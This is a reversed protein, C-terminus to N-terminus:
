AKPSLTEAAKTALAQRADESEFGLVDLATDLQEESVTGAQAKLMYSVAKKEIKTLSM